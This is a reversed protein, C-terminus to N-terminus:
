LYRHCTLTNSLNAIILTYLEVGPATGCFIRSSTGVLHRSLIRDRSNIRARHHISVSLSISIMLTNSLKDVQSSTFTKAAIAAAIKRRLPLSFIAARDGGRPNTVDLEPSLRRFCKVVEVLHARDSWHCRGFNRDQGSIAGQIKKLDFRAISFFTKNRSNVSIVVNLM